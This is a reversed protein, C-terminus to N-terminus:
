SLAECKQFGVKSWACPVQGPRAGVMRHEGKM